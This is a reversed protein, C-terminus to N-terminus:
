SQPRRAASAIAEDLARLHRPWVHRALRRFTALTDPEALLFEWLRHRGKRANCSLCCTVTNGPSNDGGRSRPQVHDLSLLTPEFVQGCYVCTYNDRAFLEARTV